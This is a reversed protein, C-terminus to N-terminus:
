NLKKYQGRTIFIRVKPKIQKELVLDERQGYDWGIIDMTKLDLDIYYRTDKDEPKKTLRKM